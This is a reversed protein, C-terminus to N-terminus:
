RVYEWHWPEYCYPRFGFREANRVLWRYVPTQVQFARNSDQTDVPEGGVYLDLARGTFHPSNVALGASGANPEERRLKEQYDRSRFASIIKLYKEGSALDNRTHALGLSRDKVAAAVMRKYAAYTRKEVLRLDEARTPDYFDSIPATLLQEPPAPSRDKLRSDQWAKIMAYLTDADLMGSKKLGAKGQWRAVAQAFKVSAPEQEARILRKILPTYLYWGRQPKSGFTWELERSLVVNARAAENIESNGAYLSEMSVTEWVVTPFLLTISLVAVGVTIRKM